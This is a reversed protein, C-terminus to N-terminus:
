RKHKKWKEKVNTEGWFGAILDIEKLEDQSFDKSNVVKINELIQEPKSAGILVSTVGNKNLVWSLAM